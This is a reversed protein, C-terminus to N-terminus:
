RYKSSQQSMTPFDMCRLPLVITSPPHSSPLSTQRSRSTSQRSSSLISSFATFPGAKPRSLSILGLANSASSPSSSTLPLPRLQSSPVLLSSLLSPSFFPLPLFFSFSGSCSYHWLALYQLYQFAFSKLLDWVTCGNKLSTGFTSLPSIFTPSPPLHSSSCIVAPVSRPSLSMCRIPAVPVTSRALHRWVNKENGLLGDPNHTLMHYSEARGKVRM